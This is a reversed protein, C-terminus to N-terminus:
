QMCALSSMSLTLASSTLLLLLLLGARPSAGGGSKQAAAAAALLPGRICGSRSGVISSSSGSCQWEREPAGQARNAVLVPAGEVVLQSELVVVPEVAALVAQGPFPLYLPVEDALRGDQLLQQLPDLLVLM